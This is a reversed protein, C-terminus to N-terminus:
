VAEPFVLGTVTGKGPGLRIQPPYSPCTCAATTCYAGPDCKTLTSKQGKLFLTCCILLLDEIATSAHGSHTIETDACIFAKALQLGPVMCRDVDTLRGRPTQCKVRRCLWCLQATKSMPSTWYGFCVLM